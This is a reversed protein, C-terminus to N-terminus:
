WPYDDSIKWGDAMIVYGCYDGAYYNNSPACNSKWIMDEEEVPTLVSNRNLGQGLMEFKYTSRNIDFHFVDKGAINPAKTGNLDVVIVAAPYHQYSDIYTGFLTGDPLSYMHGTKSGSPRSLRDAFLAFAKNGLAMIKYNANSKQASPLYPLFYKEAFETHSLTYDWNKPTEYDKEAMTVVQAFLAYNKKLKNVTVMKQHKEILTPITIAAVVGIIGLTILVEALTFAIKRYNVSHPSFVKALRFTHKNM